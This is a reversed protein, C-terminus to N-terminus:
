VGPPSALAEAYLRTLIEAAEVERPTRPFAAPDGDELQVEWGREMLWVGMDAARDPCAVYIVTTLGEPFVATSGLSGKIITTTVLAGM